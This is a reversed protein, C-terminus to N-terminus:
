KLVVTSQTTFPVAVISRYCYPTWITKSIIVILIFYAHGGICLSFYLRPSNYFSSKKKKMKKREEGKQKQRNQWYEERVVLIFKKQVEGMGKGLMEDQSLEANRRTEKAIKKNGIFNDKMKIQTSDSFNNCIKIRNM